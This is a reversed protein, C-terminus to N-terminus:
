ACYNISNSKATQRKNPATDSIPTLGQSSSSTQIVTTDVNKEENSLPTEWSHVPSRNQCLILHGMDAIIQQIARQQRDIILHLTLANDSGLHDQRLHDEIVTRTRYYTLEQQPPPLSKAPQKKSQPCVPMWGLM